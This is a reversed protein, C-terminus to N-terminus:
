RRKPSLSNLWPRLVQQFYKEREPEAEFEGALQEMRNLAGADMLEAGKAVANYHRLVQPPGQQPGSRLYPNQKMANEIKGAVHVGFDRAHLREVPDPSGPLTPLEIEVHGSEAASPYDFSKGDASLTIATKSNNELTPFLNRADDMDKVKRQNTQAFDTHAAKAGKTRVL